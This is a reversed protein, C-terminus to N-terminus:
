RHRHCRTCRSCRSRPDAAARGGSVASHEISEGFGQLAAGAEARGGFLFDLEGLGDALDHGGHLHHAQDVGAGFGGHAGQADGAAEGAAVEGDLEFAAIVAVDIRQEDFGSGADRSEAKGIGGANRLPKLSVVMVTGNLSAAPRPLPKGRWMASWIAATMTSGTQPLMPQTGGLGPKRSARRADGGAVARQQDEVFDHGAEAHSGAAGLLEVSM